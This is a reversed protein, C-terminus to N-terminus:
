RRWSKEGGRETNESEERENVRNFKSGTSSVALSPNNLENSM